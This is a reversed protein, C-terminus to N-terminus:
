YWLYKTKSEVLLRWFNDRLCHRRWPKGSSSTIGSTMKCRIVLLLSKSILPIIQLILHFSQWRLISHNLCYSISSQQLLLMSFRLGNNLIKGHLHNTSFKTFPVLSNLHFFSSDSLITTLYLINVILNNDSSVFKLM